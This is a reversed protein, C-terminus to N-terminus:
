SAQLEPKLSEIAAMVADATESSIIIADRREGSREEIRLFKGGRNQRLSLKYLKRPAEVVVTRLIEDVSQPRPFANPRQASQYIRDM